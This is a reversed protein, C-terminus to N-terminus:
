WRIRIATRKGCGGSRGRRAADGRADATPPLAKLRRSLSAVQASVRAERLLSANGILRANHGFGRRLAADFPLDHTLELALLHVSRAFDEDSLTDRCIAIGSCSLRAALQRLLPYLSEFTCDGFGNIVVANCKLRSPAEALAKISEAIPEDICVISHRDNQKNAITYRFPWHPPVHQERDAFWTAVGDRELSAISYPLRWPPSETWESDCEITVGEIETVTNLIDAIEFRQAFSLSSAYALTIAISPNAAVIDYWRKLADPSSQKTAMNFPSLRWVLRTVRRTADPFSAGLTADNADIGIAALACAFEHDSLGISWADLFLRNM